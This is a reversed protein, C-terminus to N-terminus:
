GLSINSVDDDEDESSSDGESSAKEQEDDDDDDDDDEEEETDQLLVSKCSLQPRATVAPFAKLSEASVSKKLKVLPGGPKAPNRRKQLSSLITEFM